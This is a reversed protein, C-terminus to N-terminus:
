HLKWCSVPCNNEMHQKQSDKPNQSGYKWLVQEGGSDRGGTGCGVITVEGKAALLEAEKDQPDGTIYVYNAFNQIGPDKLYERVTVPTKADSGYRLFRYLINERDEETRIKELRFKGTSHDYVGAQCSIKKEMFSQLVASFVEAVTEARQPDRDAQFAEALILVTDDVPFSKERIMIDDLKGTLKWHIQRISDGPQYERIDYTEGPDDGPRSGSYRFSEMDFGERTLFSFDQRHEGPMVVTCGSVEAARKVAAVGFFDRCKWQLFGFEICGCWNSQAQFGVTGTERTGLSFPLPIEGKEGTFQNQWHLTCSGSVPWISNNQMKLNGNFCETRQAARPLKLKWEMKKGCFLNTVASFALLIGSIMLLVAFIWSGTYVAAGALLVIWLLWMIRSKMM